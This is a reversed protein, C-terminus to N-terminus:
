AVSSRLSELTSTSQPSDGICCGCCSSRRHRTPTRSARYSPAYRVKGLNGIASHGTAVMIVAQSSRGGCTQSQSLRDGAPARIVGGTERSTSRSVKAKREVHRMAQTTLMPSGVTTPWIAHPTSTVPQPVCNALARERWRASNTESPPTFSRSDRAPPHSLTYAGSNLPM